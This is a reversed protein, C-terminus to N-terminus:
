GLMIDVPEIKTELEKESSIQKLKEKVLEYGKTAIGDIQMIYIPSEVSGGVDTELNLINLGSDALVSTVDAVIGTRDAGFVTIRVDPELHRLLEGEIEDLHFKLNLSHSIPTLLDILNQKSISVQVMLMISFNGGLRAMSAEGLNCNGQYLTKTIKAVIRPRDKGVLTLMYWTKMISGKFHITKTM